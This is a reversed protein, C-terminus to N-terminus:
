ESTKMRGVYKMRLEYLINELLASEEGALNNKTKEKLMALTDILFKAHDPYFEKKNTVPNEVEGLAVLAEMMLGTVFLNFSVEIPKAEHKEARVKEETAEAKWTEDIKKEIPSNGNKMENEM